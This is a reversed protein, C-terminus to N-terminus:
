SPECVPISASEPALVSKTQLLRLEGGGGGEDGSDEGGGDEVGGDEGGDGKTAVGGDKGERAGEGRRRRGQRV